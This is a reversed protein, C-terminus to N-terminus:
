TCRGRRICERARNRGRVPSPFLVVGMFPSSPFFVVGVFLPGYSGFAMGPDGPPGGIFVALDQRKTGSLNWNCGLFPLLNSAHAGNCLIRLKYPPRLARFKACYNGIRWLGDLEGYVLMLSARMKGLLPLGIPRM